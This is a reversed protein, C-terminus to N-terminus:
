ETEPEHREAGSTDGGRMPLRMRVERDIRERLLDLWFGLNVPDGPEEIPFEFRGLKLTLVDQNRAGHTGLVYLLEDRADLHVGCRSYEVREPLVNSLTRPLQFDLLHQAAYALLDGSIWNPPDAGEAVGVTASFSTLHNDSVTLDDIVADVEGTMRGNGLMDTFKELSFGRCEGSAILLDIGAPSLDAQRVRLSATGGGTPVNWVGFVDDLEIGTVLGRFRLRTPRDNVVRLEHLELEACRGAWPRAFLGATLEGLELDTCRGSFVTVRERVSEQHTMRGAFEGRNIKTGLMRDLGLISLPLPPVALEMEDIRVGERQASFTATLRVPTPVAHDNFRGCSILAHGVQENEFRVSGVADRMDLMFRGGALQVRMDRFTVRQPGDPGFGPRVGSELLRRFDRRLWTRPSIECTGGIIDIEYDDDPSDVTYRVIARDCDFARGARDPLWIVIDDFEQARWSRPIVRGIDAPLELAESLTRACAARYVPSRWYIAYGGTVALSGYMVLVLSALAIFRRNRM